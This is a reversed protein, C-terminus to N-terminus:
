GSPATTASGRFRAACCRYSWICAAPLGVAAAWSFHKVGVLQAIPHRLAISVVTLLATLMMMSKTWSIVTAMLDEGVGLHGLVGERATAVQMAQGAVTLILLYAILAALAGYDGILRAFVFTSGLAIVNNAIMAGALTAAKATDSGRLAVLAQDYKARLASL